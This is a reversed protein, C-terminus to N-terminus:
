RARNDSRATVIIPEEKFTEGAEDLVWSQSVPEHGAYLSVILYSYGEWAKKLDTVSPLAPFDPHSHFFGIIETGRRRAERDAQLFDKGHIVYRDRGRLLESNPVSVLEQIQKAKEIRGILIGCCEDPYSKESHRYITQLLDLPIHLATL